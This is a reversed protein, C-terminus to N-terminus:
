SAFVYDSFKTQLREERLHHSTEVHSQHNKLSVEAGLEETELPVLDAKGSCKLLNSRYLKHSRLPCM